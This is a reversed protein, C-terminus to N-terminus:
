WALIWKLMTSQEFVLTFTLQASERAFWVLNHSWWQVLRSCMPQVRGGFKFHWLQCRPGLRTTPTSTCMGTASISCGMNQVGLVLFSGDPGQEHGGAWSPLFVRCPKITLQWIGWEWGNEQDWLVTNTSLALTQFRKLTMGFGLIPYYCCRLFSKFGHQRWCVQGCTNWRMLSTLKVNWFYPLPLRWGWIPWLEQRAGNSKFRLDPQFLLLLFCDTMWEMLPFVTHCINGFTFSSEILLGLHKRWAGWDWHQPCVWNRNSTSVMHPQRHASPWTIMLM